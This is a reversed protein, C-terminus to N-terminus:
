AAIRTALKSRHATLGTPQRSGLVKTVAPASLFTQRLPEDVPLSNALKLIAVRGLERHHEASGSDGSRGFLEAATAHVRWTALPLDAENIASFAKGICEQARAVDAGAMAVRANTEWALAQWTREATAHAAELFRAAQRRAKGLDAKALWVETLSSELQLRWYWDLVVRQRDMENSATQLRDLARDPRGLAVEAAGAVILGVHRTYTCLPERVLPLVSDCIELAGAFDTAHVYLWALYLRSKQARHEDGNRALMTIAAESEQLAAGWEGLFMLSWSAAVQSAWYQRSLYPNEEHREFLIARSEVANRHAERYESSAWQIYSYDILHCALVFRSGGDRIAALEDRCAQADGPNWGGAMERWFFCSMRTSARLPADALGSSLKFAREVVELCRQSNIWSWCYAMEVLSRVQVDLLGHHVARVRQAEYTEIARMDFSAVYITALKELIETEIAARDSDPLRSALGFAQQLLVSAERHAYRRSARDAALLLYKIARPWDSSKEFHDALDPAVDSLRESFLVELGEGVRRHLKARRGPAQRQYFVERYLAHVFEYRPSANSDSLPQMTATRLIRHRRSLRDCLDEFQDAGQNAAAAAVDVAFATGVISAAELARQEELSLREIQAEIMQRLGEPVGVVIQELPLRLQWSKNECSIMGRQTLHELAAVMFLPNGGSHRHMLEALGAPQGADPAPATLYDSIDAESLPELAIERCLKHMLLEQKLAKLPHDALALDVPRYTGILMLKGPGRRRALAGILDVTAQDVWQLDEFVLLLPTEATITDLAESIERLMRERTAGLIERQLTERHEQKLLAPFQALWTPAQAALTAVVSESGPGRTLQGLAELMPYYPEKGGYGEVCQGGAIRFGPEQIAAQHLFADVLATKGIGSEGTVFVIQRKHKSASRSADNLENLAQARGVLRTAALRTEVAASPLAVESDAGIFRYGRRPLTEIFRPRKPDDELVRRIYLIQSKLGEPQIFRGPWVADLLEDQTVLRGAHEILYLLVGYAKPPLLLREDDASDRQRWLCQNTTDLRFPYFKRV